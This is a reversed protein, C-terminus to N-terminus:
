RPDHSWSVEGVADAVGRPLTVYEPVLGALDDSGASRLRAAGLRLLQPGLTDRARGGREVAEPPARGELDVAVLVDNPRVDPDRGGPLLRAPAGSRAEIRDSPGAPLLLLIRSAAVDEAAAAADILAQSTAVGVLPRGLGHALAKATALGVRLGTFAGPGTGAVIAELRSRRVNAEGLLRGISPLLQEGHRHDAPWWTLGLPEGDVTGVAVVVRSTSTDIALIARNRGDHRRRTAASVGAANGGAAIV